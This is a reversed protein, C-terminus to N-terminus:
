SLLGGPPLIDALPAGTRQATRLALFRDTIERQWVKVRGIFTLHTELSAAHATQEELLRVAYADARAEAAEARRLAARYTSRLVIM